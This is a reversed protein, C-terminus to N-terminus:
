MYKKSSHVSETGMRVVRDALLEALEESHTILLTATRWGPDRRVELLAQQVERQSALDLASTPEDLILVAPRVLLARAIAIRQM